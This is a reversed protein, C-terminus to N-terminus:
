SEWFHSERQSPDKKPRLGVRWGWSGKLLDWRPGQEKVVHAALPRPSDPQWPGLTRGALGMEFARRPFSRRWLGGPAASPVPIDLVEPLPGEAEWVVTFEDGLRGAETKGDTLHFGVERVARVM